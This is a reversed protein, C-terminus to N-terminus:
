MRLIFDLLRQLANPCSCLYPHLCLTIPITACSSAWAAVSIGKKDGQVMLLCVSNTCFMSHSRTPFSGLFILILVNTWSEWKRLHESSTNWGNRDLDSHWLFVHSGLQPANRLIAGSTTRGGWQFKPPHECVEKFNILYGQYSYTLSFGQKTGSRCSVHQRLVVVATVRSNRQSM